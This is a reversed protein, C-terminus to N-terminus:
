VAFSLGALQQAEDSPQVTEPLALTETQPRPKILDNSTTGQADTLHLDWSASRWVDGRPGTRRVAGRLQARGVVSPGKPAGGEVWSVAEPQRTPQDWEGLAESSLAYRHRAEEESRGAM